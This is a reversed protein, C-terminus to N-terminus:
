ARFSLNNFTIERKNEGMWKFNIWVAYKPIIDRIRDAWEIIVINEPNAIIEEWGLDLIDKPNVRYADIHYVTKLKSKYEKMVVFTPSTYPGEAGLGKLLGQTFTTKGSGLDGSLCIIEGGNLEKALLGGLKQTEKNSNTIYEFM